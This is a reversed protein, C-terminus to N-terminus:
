CTGVANVKQGEVSCSRTGQVDRLVVRWAWPTPLRTRFLPAGDARFLNSHQRILVPEIVCCDNLNGSIRGAYRIKLPAGAPRCPYRCPATYDAPYNLQSKSTLAIVYPRRLDNSTSKFTGCYRPHPHKEALPVIVFYFTSGPSAVTSKSRNVYRTCIETYLTGVEPAPTTM